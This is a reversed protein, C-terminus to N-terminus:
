QNIKAAGPSVVLEQNSGEFRLGVLEVSDGNQNLLLSNSKAKRDRTELRVNIKAKVKGAQVITLENTKENYKFNYEGKKLLTGNVMTDRPVTLKASKNNDAFATVAAIAGIMLAVFTRQLANKMEQGGM